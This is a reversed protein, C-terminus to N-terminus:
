FWRWYQALNQTGDSVPACHFTQVVSGVFFQGWRVDLCVGLHYNRLMAYGNRDSGTYWHWEQNSSQSYCGNVIVPTWDANSTAELCLGQGDGSGDTLGANNSIRYIATGNATGTYQIHWYYANTGGCGDLVVGSGWATSTPVMCYVGPENSGGEPRLHASTWNQAQIPTNLGISMATMALLGVKCLQKM